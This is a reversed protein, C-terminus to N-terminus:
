LSVPGYFKEAAGEAPLNLYHAFATASTNGAQRCVEAIVSKENFEGRQARATLMQNFYSIGTHRLINDQWVSNVHDGRRGRKTAKARELLGAEARVRDWVSKSFEATFPVTKKEKSRRVRVEHTAPWKEVAARLLPLVNAPVTVMRFKATRRKVTDVEIVPTPADLKMKERTTRVVEQPSMFCWTALITYAVMRGDSVTQAAALLAHCQEPTLIRAPEKTRATALLDKMDIEFPSVLLWKRKVCFNLWARLVAAQSIKTYDAADPNRYIWDECMQPRIDELYRVKAFAVFQRLRGSQNEVTRWSRKRKEMVGEWEALADACKTGQVPPLVRDAAAVCEVLRRGKSIQTAAEADRLQEANLWTMRLQPRVAEAKQVEALQQEYTAKIGELASLSHSQKRIHQGLFYGHLRWRGDELPAIHLQNKAIRAM